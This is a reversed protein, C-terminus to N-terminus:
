RTLVVKKAEGAALSVPAWLIGGQVPDYAGGTSWYKQTEVIYDCAPLNAFTFNGFGDARTYRTYDRLRRDLNVPPRGWAQTTVHLLQRVYPTDPMLVVDEGAAFVTGGGVQRFFAQGTLEGAGEGACKAHDDPNFPYTMKPEPRAACGATLLAAALALAAAEIRMRM